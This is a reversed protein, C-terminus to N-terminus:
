ETVKESTSVPEAHTAGAMPLAFRMITGTSAPNGEVTLRGHHFEVISRCINLGMGMGDAKTSFFPEFLRPLNEAPIGCGSDTVSFEAM